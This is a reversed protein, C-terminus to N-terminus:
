DWHLNDIFSCRGHHCTTTAHQWLEMSGGNVTQSNCYRCYNKSPAEQNPTTHHERLRISRHRKWWFQVQLNTGQEENRARLLSGGRYAGARGNPCTVSSCEVPRSGLDRKGCGTMDCSSLVTLQGTEVSTWCEDRSGRWYDLNMMTWLACIVHGLRLLSEECRIAVRM